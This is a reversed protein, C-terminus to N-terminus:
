TEALVVDYPGTLNLTFKDLVFTVLRNKYAGNIIKKLTKQAVLGRM